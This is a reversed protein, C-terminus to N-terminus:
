SLRRSLREIVHGRGEFFLLLWIYPAISPDFLAIVVSVLFVGAIFM